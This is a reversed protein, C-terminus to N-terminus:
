KILIPDTLTGTGSLYQIDSTLFFVPRVSFTNGALIYNVWGNTVIHAAYPNNNGAHAYRSM